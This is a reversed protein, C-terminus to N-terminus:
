RVLVEYLDSAGALLVPIRRTVQAPVAYEKLPPKLAVDRSRLYSRITTLPASSVSASPMLAMAALRGETTDPHVDGYGVTTLAVM